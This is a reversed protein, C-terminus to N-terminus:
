NSSLLSAFPTEGTIRTLAATVQNWANIRLGDDKGLRILSQAKCNAFFVGSPLDQFPMSAVTLTTQAGGEETLMFLGIVPLLVNYIMRLGSSFTRNIDTMVAGPHLAVVKVNNKKKLELLKALTQTFYINGLKSKGYTGFSSYDTTTEEASLFDERSKTSMMKDFKYAESSVNIIRAESSKELLSFLMSTLYIPAVFNTGMTVELGQKTKTLGPMLLGANNILIDLQNYNKLFATCFNKVADLDSLDCPFYDADKYTSSEAKLAEQIEKARQDQRGTFIVKAGKRVLDKVTEKGIGATGGIVLVVKGDYRTKSYPNRRGRTFWFIVSCVFVIPLVYALWGSPWWM